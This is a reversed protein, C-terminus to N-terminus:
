ASGSSSRRKGWWEVVAVLVVAVVVGVATGASNALWDDVDCRRGFLPNAYQVFEILASFAVGGLFVFVPKRSAVVAFLAPLLFLLINFDDNLPTNSQLNCTAEALPYTDPTLTLALVVIVALAAIIAAIRRGRQTARVLLAAVVLCGIVGILMALRVLAYNEIIFTSLM